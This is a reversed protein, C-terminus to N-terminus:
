LNHLGAVLGFISAINIIWGRDGSSHPEQKLMQAVGYKCGLFVSKANVRMTTDWVAEDTEHIKAPHRAELAVGANNVLIDLRGFETVAAQVADGVAKADGVDTAIFIAQGGAQTIADHTTIQLEEPIQSRATPTIDACVVKAGEQAYRTAISRGLGSSSGTVLAVKDQLRGM